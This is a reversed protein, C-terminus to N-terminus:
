MDRSLHPRMQRTRDVIPDHVANLWGGMQSLDGDVRMEGTSLFRDCAAHYNPDASHLDNLEQAAVATMEITV